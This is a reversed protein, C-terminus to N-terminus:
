EAAGAEARRREYVPHQNSGSFGARTAGAAGGVGHPLSTSIEVPMGSPAAAGEDPALLTVSDSLGNKEVVANILAARALDVGVNRSVYSPAVNRMNAATCLDAIERAHQIRLPINATSTIGVESTALAAQLDEPLDSQMAAQVLAGRLLKDRPTMAAQVARKPSAFFRRVSDTFKM